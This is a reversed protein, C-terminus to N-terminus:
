KVTSILPTGTKGNHHMEVRDAISQLMAFLQITPSSSIANNELPITGDRTNLGMSFGNTPVKPVSFGFSPLNPVSLTAHIQKSSSLLFTSAM